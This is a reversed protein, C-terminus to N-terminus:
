GTRKENYLLGGPRKQYVIEETVVQKIRNGLEKNRESQELGGQTNQDREGTTGEGTETSVGGENTVNVNITFDNNVTSTTGGDGMSAPAGAGPAGVYGGQAFYSVEQRKNLNRLYDVGVHDVVKKPVVWEGATLMAPVSDTGKILGGRAVNIRHDMRNHMSEFNQDRMAKMHHTSTISSVARGGGTPSVTPGWSDWVRVQPGPQGPGGVPGEPGVRAGGRRQVGLNMGAAAPDGGGVGWMRQAWTPPNMQQHMLLEPRGSRLWNQAASPKAATGAGQTAMLGAYFQAEAGKLGGTGLQTLKFDIPAIEGPKLKISMPGDAGQTIGTRAGLAMPKEGKKLKIARGEADVGAVKGGAGEM